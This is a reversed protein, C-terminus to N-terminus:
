ICGVCSNRHAVVPRVDLQSSTSAFSVLRPIEEDITALMGSEISDITAKSEIVCTKKGAEMVIDPYDHNPKLPASEGYTASSIRGDRAPQRASGISDNSVSQRARAQDFRRM